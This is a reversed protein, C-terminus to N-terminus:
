KSLLDIFLSLADKMEQLSCQSLELEHVLQNRFKHARWAQEKRPFDSNSVTKLIDGLSDGKFGLSLMKDYLKKDADLIALKIKEKDNSNFAAKLKRLFDDSESAKQEKKDYLLIKALYSPEKAKFQEAERARVKKIQFKIYQLVAFFILSIVYFIAMLVYFAKLLTSQELLSFPQSFPAGGTLAVQASEDFISDWNNTAQSTM